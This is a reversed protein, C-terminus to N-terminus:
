APQAPLNHAARLFSDLYRTEFTEIASSTAAADIGWICAQMDIFEVDLQVQFSQEIVFATPLRNAFYASAANVGPKGLCITPRAMLQTSNLYWMDSCVIPSLWPEDTDLHQKQWDVIQQALQYARPRDALEAILHAGVVILLMSDTDPGSETPETYPDNSM